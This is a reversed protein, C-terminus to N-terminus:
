AGEGRAIACSVGGVSRRAVILRAARGAAALAATEAVSGVGKLALVRPSRTVAQPAAAALDEATVAILPLGLAAAAGRIGPEASKEVSTALADLALGAGLADCAARIAAAVDDATVGARCGLGAVTM